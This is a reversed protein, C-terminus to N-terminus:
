RLVIFYILKSAREIIPHVSKWPNHPSIKGGEVPLEGQLISKLDNKEREGETETKLERKTEM